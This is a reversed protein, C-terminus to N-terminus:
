PSKNRYPFEWWDNTPLAEWPGGTSADALFSTKGWGPGGQKRGTPTPPERSGEPYLEDLGTSYPCLSVYKFGWAEWGFWCNWGPLTGKAWLGNGGFGGGWLADLWKEYEAVGILCGAGGIWCWGGCGYGEGYEIGLKASPGLGYTGSSRHLICGFSNLASWCRPM